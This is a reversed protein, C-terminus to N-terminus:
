CKKCNRKENIETPRHRLKACNRIHLNSYCSHWPPARQTSRLKTYSSAGGPVSSDCIEPFNYLACGEALFGPLYINL